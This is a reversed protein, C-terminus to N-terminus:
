VADPSDFGVAMKELRPPGGDVFSEDIGSVPWPDPKPQDSYGVFQDGSPREPPAPGLPLWLAVGHVITAVREVGDVSAVQEATPPNTDSARVTVDFGGAARKTFVEVQGGFVNSLVSIFIMTFIVLSYMGLTLGTRFRRALPYALGLRLSLYRAAVRRIAGELTEQSQSLLVVAAFTLLIGQAVFAYIEGAEFFQNGLIANGFIGWFLSFASVGLVATRRGAMRTLTPLLGFAVLPPGLLASAWAKDDGLAPFFWTAGLAAILAGTIVTRTRTIRMRPEPLDRIARIINIRAIRVSTFTITAFSILVGICFGGVVSAPDARFALDISFDGFGGFIPAAVIVIAWGVGIGLFAGLLSSLFAYMSGEILFGRVLGRRRMGIARLMGLQSKREESLMVFINVLLLIGAVIAFAGIGLFLESFEKGQAEAEELRDKKVEDVRLQVDSGLAGRIRPAVVDTLAGGEEVGGRNSVLVRATPPVAGEPLGDATIEAITGPALFANPSSTEFGTWFGAVGLRPLVRRVELELQSEYLYGTIRDGAEVELTDALDETVVAEGPGPPPGSIGTVEPDGGFDRAEA